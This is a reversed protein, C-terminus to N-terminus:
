PEVRVSDLSISYIYNPDQATVAIYNFPSLYIGCDIWYPSGSNVYPTSVLNWNYGNSSVYVYLPGNGYGYMYIHGSTQENMAGSIYGYYQYPGYGAITAFQGDNQWGALNEPDYVPGDYSDLGAVFSYPQVPYFVAQLNRPGNMYVDITPSNGAYYNDLIWYNDYGSNPFAEVHANSYLDYWQTGTPNTYGSGSSSITLPQPNPTYVATFTGSNEFGITVPQYYIEWWGSEYTYEYHFNNWTYGPVDSVTITYRGADPWLNITEGSNHPVGDIYFTPTFPTNDALTIRPQFLMVNGDGFVRMRNKEAEPGYFDRPYWGPNELIPDQGPIDAGPWWSNYGTNFISSTFPHQFFDLSARNLADKVSYRHRLAYDYFWKIFWQAPLTSQEYFAPDHYSSIMPSFGLFGIYAQGQNDPSVYGDASLPPPDYPIDGYSGYGRHTWAAATGPRNPGPGPDMAQECVWMFVLVHKGSPSTKPLIMYDWVRYGYNDVYGINYGALHGFHFVTARDYNQEDSYANNLIDQWYTDEGALDATSYGSHQFASEIEGAVWNAAVKEDYLQEPSYNVGEGGDLAAYIRAVSNPMHDDALAAPVTMLFASSLLAGCILIGWLKKGGAFKPKKERILAVGVVIFAAMAVVPILAPMTSTQNFEEATLADGSITSVMEDTSNSSPVGIVTPSMMGVEGTDAWILMSMGTVGGPYFKDFGLPVHWSPYLTFPDGGRALSQNPFNGYNLKAEDMSKSVINFGTVISTANDVDVEYSFSKSAELAIEAVEERTIKPKGAVKYLNWNDLFIQLQGRDYSLIFNKSNAMIGNEDIYTWVYDLIKDDSNMLELKLNGATKTINRTVDVDNLMLALGGYFNDGTYTQYRQLLGKAMEITAVAPKEVAFEGEYDSFYIQRVRDNVFSSSVRLRGEASTLM